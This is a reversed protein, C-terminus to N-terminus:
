TAADQSLYLSVSVRTGGTPPQSVTVEDTLALMLPLGMGRHARSPDDRLRPRFVGPHSVTITLRGEGASASVEVDGPPLGHEIANASAESVAVQLDFTREKGLRVDGVVDGIFARIRALQDFRGPFSQACPLMRRGSKLGPQVPPSERSQGDELPFIRIGQRATLGAVEFIRWLNLSVATIDIETAGSVREVLSYIAGIGASDVYTVKALDLIIRPSKLRVIRQLAGILQGISEHDVDGEVVLAPGNPRTEPTVKV